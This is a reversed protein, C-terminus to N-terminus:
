GAEKRHMLAEAINEACFILIFFGSIPVALYVYGMEIGVAPSAQGATLTRSVLIYGGYCMVSGAFFAVLLNIVVRVLPKTDPHLRNVFYDVGLHSGTSFAVSAGLLSVWILLYTAVEETFRSQEGLIFRSVVGWLVDLVLLAMVVMVGIELGRKLADRVKMLLTM